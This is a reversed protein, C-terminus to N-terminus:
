VSMSYDYRCAVLCQNCSFRLRGRIILLSEMSWSFPTMLLMLCSRFSCSMLHMCVCINSTNRRVKERMPREQRVQVSQLNINILRRTANLSRYLHEKMRNMSKMEENVAVFSQRLRVVVARVSRAYEQIRRNTERVCRDRLSPLPDRGIADDLDNEARAVLTQAVKISRITSEKWKEAAM